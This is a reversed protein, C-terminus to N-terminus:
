RGTNVPLLREALQIDAAALADLMGLLLTQRAGMMVAYDRNLAADVITYKDKKKAFRLALSYDGQYM